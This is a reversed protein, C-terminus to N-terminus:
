DCISSLMGLKQDLPLPLQDLETIGSLNLTGLLPQAEADDELEEL